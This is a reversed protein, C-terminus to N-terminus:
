TYKSPTAAFSVSMCLGPTDYFHCALLWDPLLKWDCAHPYVSADIDSLSPAIRCTCSTAVCILAPPPMRVSASYEHPVHQQFLVLLPWTRVRQRIGYFYIHYHSWANVSPTIHLHGLLLMALRRKVSTHCFLVNDLHHSQHQLWQM